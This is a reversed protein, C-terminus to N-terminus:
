QKSRVIVVPLLLAAAPDGSAALLKVTDVHMDLMDGAYDFAVLAIAADGAADRAADRAASRAAYWAGSRAAYRAAYRAADRAAYWADDRDATWVAPRQRGAAIVWDIHKANPLHSWATM